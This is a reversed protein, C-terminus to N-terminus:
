SGKTKNETKRAASVWRLQEGPPPLKLEERLDSRLNELLDAVPANGGAYDRLCKCALKIQESNGFLQINACAKTILRLIAEKEELKSYCAANMLNQYAELLHQVRLERRKNAQDRRSSLLHGVFWGALGFSTTILLPLLIDWKM